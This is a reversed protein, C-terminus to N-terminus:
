ENQVRKALFEIMVYITTPSVNVFIFKNKPIYFSNDCLTVFNEAGTYDTSSYLFLGKAQSGEFIAFYISIPKLVAPNNLCIKISKIIRGSFDKELTGGFVDFSEFVSEYCM